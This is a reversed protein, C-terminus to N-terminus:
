TGGGPPGAAPYSDPVGRDASARSRTAASPESDDLARQKRHDGLAKSTVLRVHCALRLGPPDGRTVRSAVLTALPIATLGGGGWWASGGFVLYGVPGVPAIVLALTWAVRAPLRHHLWVQVILLSPLLLAVGLQYSAVGPARAYWVAGILALM